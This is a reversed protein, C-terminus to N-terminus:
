SMDGIHQTPVFKPRTALWYKAEEVTVLVNGGEKITRLPNVKDYTANRISRITSVGALLAVEVLTLHQKHAMPLFGSGITPFENEITELDIQTDLKIRAFAKYVIKEAAWTGVGHWEKLSHLIALPEIAFVFDDEGFRYTYDSSSIGKEAYLYFSELLGFFGHYEKLLLRQEATDEWIAEEFYSMGAKYRSPLENIYFVNEYMSAIFEEESVPTYRAWPPLMLGVANNKMQVEIHVKLSCM